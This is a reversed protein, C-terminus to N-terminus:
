RLTCELSTYVPWNNYLCGQSKCSEQCMELGLSTCKAQAQAYTMENPPKNRTPAEMGGTTWGM